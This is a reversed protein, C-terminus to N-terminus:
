FFVVGPRQHRSGAIACDNLASPLEFLFSVLFSINNNKFSAKYRFAKVAVRTQV